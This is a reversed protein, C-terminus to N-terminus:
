RAHGFVITEKGPNFILKPITARSRLVRAAMNQLHDRRGIRVGSRYVGQATQHNRPQHGPGARHGKRPGQHLLVARVDAEVRGREYGARHRQHRVCVMDRGLDFSTEITLAGRSNMSEAANVILNMFVQELKTRHAKVPPIDQYLDVHVALGNMIIHGDLLSLTERIIQNVSVEEQEARDPRAFDLLGAVIIKCRNALKLVKNPLDTLSDTPVGEAMDELLLHTYTIIGGLPNNIEHAINLALQGAAALRESHIIQEELHKRRTIDQITTQFAQRGQYDIPRTALELEFWTGDPRIGRGELSAPGDVNHGAALLTEFLGRRTDPALFRHLQAGALKEDQELGFMERFSNNVFYIAQSDHIVIGDWAQEVMQRYKAESATLERELRIRHTIDLLLQVAGCPRGGVGSIPAASIYLHRDGGPLHFLDEAVFGGPVMFSRRLSKGQFRRHLGDIDNRLVFDAMTPRPEAFFGRWHESTNLVSEQHVGTLAQCAKNWHSVKGQEDLVFMAVPIGEIIGETTQRCISLARINRNAQTVDRIIGELGSRDPGEEWRAATILVEIASGDKRRFVTEFAKVAGFTRLRKLLEERDAPNHYVDRVSAGALMELKSNYGLMAVGAANVELWKGDDTSVFLFDESSEFLRQYRAHSTELAHYAATRDLVRAIAAAIETWESLDIPPADPPLAALVLGTREPSELPLGIRLAAHGSWPSLSPPITTIPSDLGFQGSLIAAPDSLANELPSLGERCLIQSQPAQFALLGGAILGLDLLTRLIGAATPELGTEQTFHTLILRAAQLGPRFATDVVHDPM